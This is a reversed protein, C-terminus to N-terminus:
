RGEVDLKVTTQHSTTTCTVSCVLPSSWRGSEFRSRMWAASEM